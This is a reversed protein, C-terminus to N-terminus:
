TNQARVSTLDDMGEEGNLMNDLFDNRNRKAGISVEEGDKGTNTEDVEVGYQKELERFKEGIEYNPVSKSPQLFLIPSSIVLVLGGERSIEDM